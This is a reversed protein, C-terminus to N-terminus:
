TRKDGADRTRFDSQASQQAQLARIRGLSHAHCIAAALADAAHNPTPVAKLKLLAKVMQQVQRKSANGYGVVAQKIQMPTYECLTVGQEATALIAVGRAQAVQIATKRNKSFFLDEVVVTDPKFRAVLNKVEGYICRLREPMSQTSSTGIHGFEVETAEGEVFDIMGFGLTALGPDIGLIRM